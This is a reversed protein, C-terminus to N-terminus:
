DAVQRESAVNSRFIVWKGDPSFGANPKLTYDHKSINV